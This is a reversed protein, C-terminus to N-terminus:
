FAECPDGIGTCDFADPYFACGNGDDCYVGTPLENEPTNTPTAELVTNTPTAALVTNTPTPDLIEITTNTPTAALSTNTPTPAAPCSVFANIFGDLGVDYYGTAAGISEGDQYYGPDAPLTCDPNQYLIGQTTSYGIGEVGIAISCTDAENIFYYLSGIFTCEPTNTPTAAPVTNTPTAALATNTPTPPNVGLCNSASSCTGTSEQIAGGSGSVEEIATGPEVCVQVIDEGPAAVLIGQTLTGGTGNYDYYNFVYESNLEGTAFVTWCDGPPLTNTPTPALATNTPTPALTNTPPPLTPTNTPTAALETNTPTPALTNTPTPELTNTPTPELTNTPTPELTNTPTPELTNTPTPPLTNTPTAALPTTNTPTPALTNTPTPPLTNTPTAALPTTNTPTPALTNTPTPPLTNTPTAALATNTPTPALTNTPTAGVPTTNTPTPALATNTPTAPAFSHNYGFFESIAHPEVTDPYNGPASSTNAGVKPSPDLTNVNITSLSQLSLENSPLGKEDGVDKISIQGSSVIAM